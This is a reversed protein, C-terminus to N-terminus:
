PVTVTITQLNTTASNSSAQLTLPLTISGGGGGSQTGGACSQMGAAAAALLLTLAFARALDACTKGVLLKAILITAFLALGVGWTWAVTAPGPQHGFNSGPGRQALSASPKVSVSV